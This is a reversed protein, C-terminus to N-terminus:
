SVHQSRAARISLVVLTVLTIPVVFAIMTWSFLPLLDHGTSSLVFYLMYAVYYGLFSAGEWRAIIHETFSIPLCAVAVAIMLPIDFGLAAEPVPIGDASALSSLGLVALINFISSGM